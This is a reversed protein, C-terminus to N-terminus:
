VRLLTSKNLNTAPPFPFTPYKPGREKEDGGWQAEWIPRWVADERREGRARSDKILDTGLQHGSGTDQM